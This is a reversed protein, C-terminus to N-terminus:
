RLQLRNPTVHCVALLLLCSLTPCLWPPLGQRDCVLCACAHRQVYCQVYAPLLWGELLLAVLLVSSSSSSVADAAGNMLIGQDAVIWRSSSEAFLCV